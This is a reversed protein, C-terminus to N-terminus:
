KEKKIELVSYSRQLKGAIYVSREVDLVYFTEGLDVPQSIVTQYKGLDIQYLYEYYCTNSNKGPETCHEEIRKEVALVPLSGEFRVVNQYDVFQFLLVVLVLPLALLWRM